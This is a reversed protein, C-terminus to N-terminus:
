MRELPLKRGFALLHQLYFSSKGVGFPSLESTTLRPRTIASRDLKERRGMRSGENGVYINIMFVSAM